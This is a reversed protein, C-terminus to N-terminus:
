FAQYVFPEESEGGTVIFVLLLIIAMCAARALRPWRLYIYEDQTRMQLVDMLLSVALVPFVLFLRRFRIEFSSGSFLASWFEFAAPLEWRFPVWALIVFLFVITASLGQRWFPQNQAPRGPRWISFIREFVLYLGHLAGWLLMHMGFGHWLGSVLMTLMPPLVISALNQRSSTRRALVRSIPFYIYDRLWESLTIHWRTWFETFTRSFYPVRFNPSLEIGFLGSVGRVINTYGAFDNYIAFAYIVLWGLLESSTYKAPLNFVDLLISATLIDAILLKRVLGTFILLISRRVMDPDLVRAQALKPLFSRAREIPGAIIKPFYCLYLAFSVVDTEARLQGRYVDVLYSITQLVYYSLGLPILLTLGGAQVPIGLRGFLSELQPLFFASARFLILTSVNIGIGLWLVGRRMRNESGLQLALRFNIITVIGLVVAFQWAWLAIFTYSVFLLWVNQSRRPLLYYVGLALTTFLFYHISTITM